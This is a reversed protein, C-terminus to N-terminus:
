AQNLQDRLIQCYILVAVEDASTETGSDLPTPVNLSRKSQVVPGAVELESFVPPRRLRRFDTLLPIFTSAPPLTLLGPLIPPNLILIALLSLSFVSSIYDM